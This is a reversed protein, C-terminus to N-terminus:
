KYLWGADDGLRSDLFVKDVVEVVVYVGLVEGNLDVVPVGHLEHEGLTRAVEEVTADPTVTVPDADMYERVAPM